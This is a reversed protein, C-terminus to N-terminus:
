FHEYNKRREERKVDLRPAASVTVADATVSKAEGDTNNEMWLKFTPQIKTGNAAGEVKVGASLTGAGPIANQSSTNKLLKKGTLTQSGDSNTTVKANEMWAMQSTDWQATTKDCPLTFSCMLYGSDIPKDTKLATAYALTYGIQDFSRVIKNNASSDNGPKDNADFPGVGDSIEQVKVASVLSDGSDAAFITQTFPSAFVSVAMLLSVAMIIGSKARCSIHNTKKSFSSKINKFINIKM